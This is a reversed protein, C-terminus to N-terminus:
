GRTKQPAPTKGRGSVKAAKNFVSGIIKIGSAKFSEASEKIEAVSAGERSTVLLLADATIAIARADSVDACPPADIIVADYESKLENLLIKMNDSCILEGAFNSRAACIVDPGGPELTCVASKWDVKGDLVENLTFPPKDIKCLRSVAPRRLDCDILIVRSLKSQLSFAINAAVTSGGEGERAATVIVSKLGGSRIARLVANRTYFVSEQFKPPANPGVLSYPANKANAGGKEKIITGILPINVKEEVEEPRQLGSYSLTFLTLVCFDAILGLLLGIGTFKVSRLFGGETKSVSPANVENLQLNSIVYKTVLSYNDIISQLVASASDADAATVNLTFMNTDEIFNIGVAADVSDVGLDQAVVSMMASGTLVSPFTDALQQATSASYYSVDTAYYKATISLTASATYGSSNSIASYGFGLVGGACVLVLMLALFRKFGALYSYFIDKLPIEQAAAAGNSQM